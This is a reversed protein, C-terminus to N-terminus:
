HLILKNLQSTIKTTISNLKTKTAGNVKFLFEQLYNEGMTETILNKLFKEKTIKNRKCYDELEKYVHNNVKCSLNKM